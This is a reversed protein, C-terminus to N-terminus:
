QALGISENGVDQDNKKNRKALVRKLEEIVKDNQEAEKNRAATNGFLMRSAKYEKAILNKRLESSSAISKMRNLLKTSSVNRLVFRSNNSKLPVIKESSNCQELNPAMQNEASKIEASSNPVLKTKASKLETSSIHIFNNKNQFNFNKVCSENNTKVQLEKSNPCLSKVPSKLNCDGSNKISVSNKCLLPEIIGSLRLRNMETAKNKMHVEFQNFYKNVFERILHLDGQECITQTNADQKENHSMYSTLSSSLSINYTIPSPTQKGIAYTKGSTQSSCKSQNSFAPCIKKIHPSEFKKQMIPERVTYTRSWDQIWRKTRAEKFYTLKSRNCDSLKIQKNFSNLSYESVFSTEM